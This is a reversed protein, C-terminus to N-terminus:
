KAVSLRGRGPPQMKAAQRSRYIKRGVLYGGGVLVAGGVGAAVGVAFPHKAIFSVSVKEGILAEAREASAKDGRLHAERAVQRAGEVDVKYSFQFKRVAVKGDSGIPQANPDSEDIAVGQVELM